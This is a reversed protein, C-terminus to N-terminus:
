GGHFGWTGTLPDTMVTGIQICRKRSGKWELDMVNVSANSVVKGEEVMSYPLYTDKWFGSEYWEKFSLDFVRVALELFSERLLKDDRIQKVLRM